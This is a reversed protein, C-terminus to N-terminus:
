EDAEMRRVILLVKGDGHELDLSVFENGASIYEYILADMHKSLGAWKALLYKCMDEYYPTARRVFVEGEALEVAVFVERCAM